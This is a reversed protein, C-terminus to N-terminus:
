KQVPINSNDDTSLYLSSPENQVIAVVFQCGFDLVANIKLTKPGSHGIRVVNPVTPCVENAVGNTCYLVREKTDSPGRIPDPVYVVDRSCGFNAVSKRAEYAAM